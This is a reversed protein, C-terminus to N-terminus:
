CPGRAGGERRRMGETGEGVIGRDDGGGSERRRRARDRGEREGM